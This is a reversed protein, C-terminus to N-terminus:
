LRLVIGVVAGLLIYVIPHLRIFHVAAFFAAGIVVTLINVVALNFLQVSAGLILAVVAPRIAYFGTQVYCNDRFRFLMKSVWVIVVLSPLTLGITAIIGGGFGATNFGAYTAMNVGLPGPTSESIAIMDALEQHSFWGYKNSLNFLFPVTVLGGGIALLGIKFFEWFLLVYIM